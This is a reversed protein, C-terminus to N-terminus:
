HQLLRCPRVRAPATVCVVGDRRRRHAVPAGELPRRAPSAAGLPLRIARRRGQAFSGLRTAAWATGSPAAQECHTISSM